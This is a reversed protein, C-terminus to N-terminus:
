DEHCFCDRPIIIKKLPSYRCIIKKCRMIQTRKGEKWKVAWKLHKLSLRKQKHINKHNKVDIKITIIDNSSVLNLRSWFINEIFHSVLM